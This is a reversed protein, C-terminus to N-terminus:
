HTYKPNPKIVRGYSSVRPQRGSPVPAPATTPKSQTTSQDTKSSTPEDDCEDVDTNTLIENTKLLHRRNRRYVTGDPTEVLYSRSTQHKTLVKAPEWKADPSKKMRVTEGDQLEALPKATRDHYYKQRQQQTERQSIFKETDILEPKLSQTSTPIITSLKRNMLAQAPSVGSIPTNRYQLLALYPDQGSENCKLLIHKVTQVCKEHLGGSQPYKPSITTHTFGYTDAFSKFEESTYQSGNDSIVESPIGHRSFFSKMKSIVTASRINRLESVEPYRSYYDVVILHPRGKFDFLDTAVREWPRSPLKHSQLTKKQNCNRHRLCTPCKSIMDEIQNSMGPWFISQRALQKTKEIGLHSLHLKRLTDKQLEPPILINQGVYIIGDNETLKEHYQYYEILDPHVMNKHHPWGTQIQQVLLQMREDEAVHKKIEQLKRDTVYSQSSMLHIYKEDNMEKEYDEEKVDPQFARSLADALYMETGKKYRIEIDYAQLQLLMKQLRSPAQALPKNFIYQLPKHDTEIIVRKGYIHQHFRRCGFVIAFLEKEIQAWRQQTENLAKSAYAVPGQDQILAAGLGKMSSDVQLTVPKTVDYYRLTEPGSLLKKLNEFAKEHNELWHFEINKKTLERLPETFNSVHPSFKAVFNVMGLLRLVDHKNEPRPYQQIAAIKSDDPKLGDATLKEGLYILETQRFKCKEKNLTMNVQRVRDLTKILNRDHEERTKGWVLIDDIDTECGKIDIFLENVTRHFVEQAFSFGYPVVNYKYRGYPTNFTTLYSSEEDLPLQWFASKADLHSFYKAGTLRTSIEEQTPLHYHERLIVKNLDRPDICIRLKGSRKENIVMSNVWATPEHVQKIVGQSEMDDLEQKLRDRLAAPVKRPPHVVPVANKDIKIHYPTSISGLGEFCDAYKNFIERKLEDSNKTGSDNQVENVSFTILNLNKCDECGLLSRGKEVVQFKLVHMNNKSYCKLSCMGVVPIDHGGFSTLKATSPKLKSNRQKRPVVTQFDKITLVNTEAGSDLKFNLLKGNIKLTAYEETRTDVSDITIQDIGHDSYDSEDFDCEMEHVRTHRSKRGSRCLKAFHGIKSCTNCKKGYAPCAKPGHLRGCNGCTKQQQQPKHSHRDGASGRKQFTPKARVHDINSAPKESFSKLQRKSQEAARCIDIAKELSLDAIRLLRERLAANRIGGVIRDRILGDQLDKFECTSALTRLETVYQDISESEIQNRTFFKHREYTLNKRPECYAKFAKKLEETKRQWVIEGDENTTTEPPLQLTKYIERGKEGICLLFYACKDEENRSRLETKEFLNWHEEFKLYADRLNEATFDLEKPAAWQLNSSTM